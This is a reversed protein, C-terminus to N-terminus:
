RSSSHVELSKGSALERFAEPYSRTPHYGLVDIARDIDLTFDFALQAVLFRTLRPARNLLITRHLREV